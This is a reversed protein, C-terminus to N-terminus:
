RGGEETEGAAPYGGGLRGTDILKRVAEVHLCVGRHANGGCECANQGNGALSIRYRVVAGREGPRTWRTLDFSRGADSPREEVLYTTAREGGDTYSLTLTLMPPAWRLSRGSIRKVPRPKATSQTM